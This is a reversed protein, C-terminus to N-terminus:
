RGDNAAWLLGSLDGSLLTALTEYRINNAAIKAAERDVSVANGDLGPSAGKDEVVRFGEDRRPAAGLHRPDTASLTVDLVKEFAARRELDRPRFGPTDVHALNASLLNHRAIHYDLGVQLREVSDLLKM